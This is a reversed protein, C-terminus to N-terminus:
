LSDAYLDELSWVVVEPGVRRAYKILDPEFGGAAVYLLVAGPALAERAWAHGSEGLQRLMDIHKDHVAETIPRHNWKVAGTLMKGDTRRAVIDIETQQRNRDLGEWRGWERITPLREASRRRTYAQEAISEFVFGMYADLERVIYTQWVHLPEHRELENRYRTVIAYYFRLAPDTVRYRFPTNTKAGFNRWATIFGLEILMELKARLSFDNGLGTQQAIENRDTAGAGIANMVASYEAIDRLGHEQAVITEVQGRVAGAPSLVGEVVNATLTRRLNISALYRPTGGYIGYALARDRLTRFHAMAAADFYDFPDLHGKWDLRGHLPNDQADLRAMVRVISGCLVLVFPRGKPRRNVHSEWVAALASDVNENPDGHLYQYEDLIVVTPEEDGLELILEFVRRWTAYDRESIALGSFRAVAELLARRNLESTGDVATFYFVRAKPWTHKLLFTKGVRRRGYLVAMSPGARKLLARLAQQESVRDVLPNIVDSGSM